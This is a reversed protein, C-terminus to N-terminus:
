PGDLIRELTKSNVLLYDHNNLHRILSWAKERENHGYEFMLWDQIVQTASKEKLEEDM